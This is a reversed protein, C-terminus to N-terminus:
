FMGLFVLYILRFAPIIEECDLLKFIEKKKFDPM